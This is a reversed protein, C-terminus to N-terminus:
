VTSTEDLVEITLRGLHQVSEGPTATLDEVFDVIGVFPKVAALTQAPTLALTIEGNAADTVTPALDLLEPGREYERAVARVGSGVFIYPDGDEPPDTETLRILIVRDYKSGRRVVLDTETAACTFEGPM